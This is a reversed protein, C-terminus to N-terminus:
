EIDEFEMGQRINKAKDKIELYIGPHVEFKTNMDDTRMRTLKTSRTLNAKAKKINQVTELEYKVHIEEEPATKTENEQALDDKIVLADDNSKNVIDVAAIDPDHESEM